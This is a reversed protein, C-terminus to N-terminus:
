SAIEKTVEGTEHDIVELQAHQSKPLHKLFDISPQAGTVKSFDLEMKVTSLVKGAVNAAANAAAPTIKGSAVQELVNALHNRLDITNNIRTEESM